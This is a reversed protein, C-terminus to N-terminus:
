DANKKQRKPKEETVPAYNMGFKAIVEPYTMYGIVDSKTKNGLIIAGDKITISIKEGGGVLFPVGNEITFNMLM